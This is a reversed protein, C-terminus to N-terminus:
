HTHIYVPQQIELVLQVNKQVYSENMHDLLADARSAPNQEFM